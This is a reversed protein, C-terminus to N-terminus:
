DPARDLITWYSMIGSSLSSSLWIERETALDFTPACRSWLAYVVRSLCARTPPALVYGALQLESSMLIFRELGNFRIFAQKCYLFLETQFIIGWPETQSEANQVSVKQSFWCIAHRYYNKGQANMQLWTSKCWCNLSLSFIAHAEGRKTLQIFYWVGTDVWHADGEKTEHEM